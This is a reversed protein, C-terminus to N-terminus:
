FKYHKCETPYGEPFRKADQCYNYIMNKKQIRRMKRRSNADLDHTWWKGGRATDVNYNRYYATFPAKSWDTKVLGGQTAWDDAEWLSSYLKMPQKKLFPVGHKEHNLFVRIPTEDVLFMILRPNWVISYTHYENTPDFWLRFQQERSGKGEGFVNTHLTYPHGSANGLFEFDIEDHRGTSPDSQLYLTTVTGASNGAVLKMQMDFRGFLYDKKSTFGSGSYQDLSLSLHDGGSGYTKVREGGFTQQFADDFHAGHVSTSVMLILVMIIQPARFYVEHGGNSPLGM